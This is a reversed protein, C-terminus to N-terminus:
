QDNRRRRLLNLLIENKPEEFPNEFNEDKLLSLTKKPLYKELLIQTIISGLEDDQIGGELQLGFTYRNENLQEEPAKPRTSRSAVALPNVASRLLDAISQISSLKKFRSIGSADSQDRIFTLLRDVYSRNPANQEMLNYVARTVSAINSWLAVTNESIDIFDLVDIVNPQLENRTLKAATGAVVITKNRNSKAVTIGQSDRFEEILQFFLVREPQTNDLGTAVLAFDFQGRAGSQTQVIVRDNTDIYVNEIKEGNTTVTDDDETFVNSYRARETQRFQQPTKAQVNFLIQKPKQQPKLKGNPYAEAPAKGAAFLSLIFATDAGGIVAIRTKEDLLESFPYYNEDRNLDSDWCGYLEQIATLTLLRPLQYLYKEGNQYAEKVEGIIQDITKPLEKFFQETRQGPVKNVEKGPGTLILLTKQRLRGQKGTDRDTFRIISDGGDVDIINKLDVDQNIIIQHVRSVAEVALNRGIQPGRIYTRKGRITETGDAETVTCDVTLDDSSLQRHLQPSNLYGSPAIPTTDGVLPINPFDKRPRATSSNVHLIRNRWVGALRKSNTILTVEHTASYLIAANMAAPGDGIITIESRPTKNEDISDYIQELKQTSSRKVYTDIEKMFERCLPEDNLITELLMGVLDSKNTLLENVPENTFFLDRKVRDTKAGEAIYAFFDQVSEYKMAVEEFFSGFRELLNKARVASLLQPFVVNIDLGQLELDARLPSNELYSNLVDAGVFYDGARLLAVKLEALQEPTRTESKRGM